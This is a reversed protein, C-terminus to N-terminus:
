ISKLADAHRTRIAVITPVLAAGLIILLTGISVWIAPVLTITEAFRYPELDFFALYLKGGIIRSSFNGIVVGFIISITSVIVAYLLFIQVIDLPKVGLVRLLAIKYKNRLASLTLTSYISIGVVLCISLMVSFVMLWITNLFEFTPREIDIWSRMHGELALQQKLHSVVLEAKLPDALRVEIVNVEPLDDPAFEHVQDIDFILLPEGSGKANIRLVGHLRYYNVYISDLEGTSILYENADSSILSDQALFAVPFPNGGSDLVRSLRGLNTGGVILKKLDAITDDQDITIGRVQVVTRNLERIKYAYVRTFNGIYSSESCPDTRRSLDCLQDTVSVQALTMTQTFYLAPAADLIQPHSQAIQKAFETANDRLWSGHISIHPNGGM